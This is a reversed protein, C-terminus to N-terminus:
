LRAALLARTAEARPDAFVGATPGAEVCRGADLVLVREAFREVSHLDHTILICALDEERMRRAFLELMEDRVAGDLSSLAEDLVLVRPRTALARAICM